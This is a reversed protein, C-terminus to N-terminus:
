REATTLQTELVQVLRTMRDRNVGLDSYGTRSASRFHIARNAADVWFEVDDTFRFFTSTFTAHLYEETTTVVQGNADDVASKIVSMVRETTVDNPLTVPEMRHDASDTQTSVCNPSSPAPALQGDVVGLNVPPVATLSRYFMFVLLAVPLGIVIALLQM